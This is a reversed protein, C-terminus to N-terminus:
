CVPLDALRNFLDRRMQYSVQRSLRIMLISLLYSLLSSVLYFGGMLGCFLFVQPFDVKGAGPSIADIAKGSLSPAVLALLNSVLTLIAAGALLGKFRLLYRGLRRLTATPKERLRPPTGKQLSVNQRGPMGTM